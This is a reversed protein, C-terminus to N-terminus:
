GNVQNDLCGILNEIIPYNEVKNDFSIQNTQELIEKVINSDCEVVKKDIRNLCQLVRKVGFHAELESKVKLNTDNPEWYVFFSFSMNEFSAKLSNM